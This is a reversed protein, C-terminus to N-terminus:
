EESFVVTIDPHLQLISAPIEPTIPGYFARRVIDKKAKGNAILLIKKAQMISVMGMTLAQRPVDAESEFFRANARITSEHLDVIHTSKVFVDAPENFGIHGDLGIGLLQLDIGGLSDIREDYEVCERNLDDACGDPVFTNERRINVHDFFNTQMFYRYSQPDDEELGVYEDLNVTTVKSFDIDGKNYWDILQRYVGLPSSGTALGLVSQPKMIVQASIINAAQRSLKEYTPVNIFKMSSEEKREIRSENKKENIRYTGPPAGMVRRFVTSFYNQDFYGLMAAVEGVRMGSQLQESAYRMKMETFYRSVGMGAYRTFIKKLASLSINCLGAIEQASLPERLHAHLVNVIEAYRLASPLTPRVVVDGDNHSIRLLWLELRIRTENLLARDNAKMGETVADCIRDLEEREDDTLQAVRSTFSPVAAAFFSLNRVHPISEFESWIRHFEDPQHLIMQGASLTYVEEGATIGVTGEAVYVLEYFPHREGGFDHDRDFYRDLSWHFALIDPCRAIGCDTLQSMVNEQMEPVTKLSNIDMEM